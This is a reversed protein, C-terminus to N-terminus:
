AFDLIRGEISNTIESVSCMKLTYEMVFILFYMSESKNACSFKCGHTLRRIVFGYFM